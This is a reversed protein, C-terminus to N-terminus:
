IECKTQPKCHVGGRTACLLQGDADRTYMILIRMCTEDLLWLGSEQLFSRSFDDGGTDLCAYM